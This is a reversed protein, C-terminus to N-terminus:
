ALKKVKMKLLLRKLEGESGAMLTTDDQMDLTITIEGPSRPELQLEDLEANWMIVQMCTLYSPHCYVAKICEKGLKSGDKTGHGTRVRAEQRSYLNRLLCTFHDPIGMEQPIKWNSTICVFAKAYATFCFCIIKWFERANEIIWHINAIQDRTGRGKRFRAQVDPIRQKM